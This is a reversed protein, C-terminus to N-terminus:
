ELKNLNMRNKVSSVEFDFNLKVGFDYTLQVDTIAKPLLIAVGDIRKWIDFAGNVEWNQLQM